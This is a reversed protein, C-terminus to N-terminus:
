FVLRILGFYILVFWFLGFWIGFFGFLLSKNLIKAKKVAFLSLFLWQKEGRKKLKKSNKIRNVEALNGCLIDGDHPPM